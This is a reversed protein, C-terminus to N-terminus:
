LWAPASPGLGRRDLEDEVRASSSVRAETAAAREGEKRVGARRTVRANAKFELDSRRRGDDSIRARAAHRTRAWASGADGPVLL